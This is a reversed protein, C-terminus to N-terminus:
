PHPPCESAATIGLGGCGAGGTKSEMPVSSNRSWGSRSAAETDEAVCPASPSSSSRPWEQDQTPGSRTRRRAVEPRPGPRHRGPGLAEQGRRRGSSCPGRGQRLLTPSSAGTDADTEPYTPGSAATERYSPGQTRMGTRMPFGDPKPWTRATNLVSRTVRSNARVPAPVRQRNRVVAVVPVVPVVAVVPVAPPECGRSGARPVSGM